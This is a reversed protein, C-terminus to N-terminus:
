RLEGATIQGVSAQQESVSLGHLEAYAVAMMASNIAWIAAMVFDEIGERVFPDYTFKKAVQGLITVGVFVAEAALALKLLAFFNAKIGAFFKAIAVWVTVHRDVIMLPIFAIFSFILPLVSWSILVGYILVFPYRGEGIHAGFM